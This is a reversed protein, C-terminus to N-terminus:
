LEGAKEKGSVVGEEGKQPDEVLTQSEGAADEGSAYPAEKDPEAPEDKGESNQSEIALGEGTPKEEDATVEGMVAAGMNCTAGGSPKSPKGGSLRKYNNKAGLRSYPTKGPQYVTDRLKITCCGLFFLVDFITGTILLDWNSIVRTSDFYVILMNACACVANLLLLMRLKKGSLRRLWCIGALVLCAGACLVTIFYVSPPLTILDHYVYFGVTILRSLSYLMLALTVITKTM